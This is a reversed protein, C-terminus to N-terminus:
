EAVASKHTLKKPFRVAIGGHFIGKYGYGLEFFGAFQRGVRVGIPTAQFGYAWPGSNNNEGTQLTKNQFLAVGYSVSGYLRVRVPAHRTDLYSFTLEPAVTVFIGWTPINEYALGLGFTLGRTIYYRYTLSPVGWSSAVLNGNLSHNVFDYVSYYGYGIAIESKGQQAHGRPIFCIMSLVLCFAYIKRQM